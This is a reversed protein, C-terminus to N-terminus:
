ILSNCEICIWGSSEWLLVHTLKLAQMFAEDHSVIMFAGTFLSLADELSKQAWLDLHNTPEDLLLLQPPEAGWLVCALAAKLWQGGSLNRAPQDVQLADLGLRALQIRQETYSLPSRDIQLQELVSRQAPLIHAPSQDLWACKVWTNCHGQAPPLLGAIVKLLTTKGCGNPGKIGVRVPGYLSLNILSHTLLYPLAVDDLKLIEKGQPVTSQPLSLLISTDQAQMKVVDGIQQNLAQKANQMQQKQKGTSFESNDKQRGRSIGDINAVKASEKRRSQQKIQKDHQEHQERLFKKREHKLQELRTEIRQIEENRKKQYFTYNSGYAVTKGNSLEIVDEVHDLLVRDHSIILAGGNWQQLQEYLWHRANADLHNSPEDLVLFGADSAFATCLAVQVREGASLQAVTSELTLQSFGRKNWFMELRTPLDWRGELIDFDAQAMSGAQIRSLAQQFVELDLMKAVTTMNSVHLNQAVYIIPVYRVVVGQDPKIEDTIIKALVSKGVGNAGVLGISKSQLTLNIDDLLWEGNPLQYRVNNLLIVGSTSPHGELNALQTASIYRLLVDSQLQVM